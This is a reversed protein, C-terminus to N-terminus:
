CFLGHNVPGLSTPRQDRPILRFVETGTMPGQATLIESVQPELFRLSVVVWQM